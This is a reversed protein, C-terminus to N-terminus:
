YTIKLLLNMSDRIITTQYLSFKTWLETRSSVNNSVYM